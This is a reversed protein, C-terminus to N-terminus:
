NTVTVGKQRMFTLVRARERKKARIAHPKECKKTMKIENKLQFIEKCLTRHMEKLDEVSQDKLENAM